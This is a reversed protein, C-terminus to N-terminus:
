CTCIYMVFKTCVKVFRDREEQLSHPSANNVHCSLVVSYTCCVVGRLMSVPYLKFLVCLFLM